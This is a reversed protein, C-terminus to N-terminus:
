KALINKGKVNSTSKYDCRARKEVSRRNAAGRRQACRTLLLLDVEGYYELRSGGREAAGSNVADKLDSREDKLWQLM